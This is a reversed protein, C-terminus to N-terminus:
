HCSRKQCARHSRREESSREFLTFQNRYLNQLNGSSGFGVDEHYTGDKLTVRVVATYGVSFRGNREESFDSTIEVISCSWGNFSLITNALEISKWGEIYTYSQGGAGPRTMLNEKRTKENLIKGLQETEEHSYTRSGFAM